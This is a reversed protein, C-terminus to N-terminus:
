ERAEHDIDASFLLPEM